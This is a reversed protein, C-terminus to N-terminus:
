FGGLPRRSFVTDGVPACLAPNTTVTFTCSEEEGVQTQGAYTKCLLTCSGSKAHPIQSYFAQPITFPIAPQTLLV